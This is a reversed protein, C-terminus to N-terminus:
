TATPKRSNERYQSPSLALHQRFLERLWASTMGVAKSIQNISLDTERLLLQAELLRQQTVYETFTAGSQRRFNETFVSRSMCVLGAVNDISLDRALNQRIFLRTRAMPDHNEEDPVNKMLPHREGKGRLSAAWETSPLVQIHELERCLEYALLQLWSQCISARFTDEKLAEHTANILYESVKSHVLSAVDAEHFLKGRANLSKTGIWCNLSNQYPLMQFIRCHKSGADFDLHEKHIEWAFPVGPPLLVGYGCPLRVEYDAIPYSIAGSLVFNFKPTRTSQLNDDPWRANVMGAAGYVRPSRVAQRKGRIPRPKATIGDPLTSQRKRFEAFSSPAVLIKAMGWREICPIIQDRLARFLSSTESPRTV